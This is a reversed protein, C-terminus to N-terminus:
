SRPAASLPVLKRRSFDLTALVAVAIGTIAGFGVSGAVVLGLVLGYGASPENGAGSVLYCFYFVAGGIVALPLWIISVRALWEDKRRYFYSFLVPQQAVASFGAGLWGGLTLTGTAFLISLFWSIPSAVVTVPLWWRIGPFLFRLVLWQACGYIAGAALGHVVLVWWSTAPVLVTLAAFVLGAAAHAAIWTAYATVARLWSM